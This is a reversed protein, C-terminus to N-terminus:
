KIKTVLVYGDASLKNPTCVKDYAYFADTTSINSYGALSENLGNVLEYEIEVKGLYDMAEMSVFYRHAKIYNLISDNELRKLDNEADALNDFERYYAYENNDKVVFGADTLKKTYLETFRTSDGSINEQEIEASLIVKAAVNPILNLKVKKLDKTGWKLGLTMESYAYITYKGSNAEEELTKVLHDFDELVEDKYFVRFFHEDNFEGVEEQIFLQLKYELGKGSTSVTAYSTMNDENQCSSLCMLAMTFIALRKMIKTIM